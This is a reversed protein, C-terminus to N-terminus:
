LEKKYGSVALGRSLNCKTVEVEEIESQIGFIHSGDFCQVLSLAQEEGM